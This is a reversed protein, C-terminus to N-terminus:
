LAPQKCPLNSLKPSHTLSSCLCPTWVEMLDPLPNQAARGTSCAQQTGLKGQLPKPSFQEFPNPLLSAAKGFMLSSPSPNSLSRFRRELPRASNQLAPPAHM